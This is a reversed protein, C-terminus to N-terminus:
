GMGNVASIMNFRFRAGTTKVVRTTGKLRWTTGAYADSRMGSEDAFFIAAGERKPKAAIAPYGETRWREVLVPNQQWPRYLPHQPTFGLRKRLRGVSVKSLRVGFKRRIVERIHGVDM